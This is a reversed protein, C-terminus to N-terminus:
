FGWDWSPLFPLFPLFIDLVWDVVEFINPLKPGNNWDDRKDKM